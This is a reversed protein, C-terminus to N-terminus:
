EKFFAEAIAVKPETWTPIKQGAIRANEKAKDLQNVVSYLESLSKDPYAAFPELIKLSDLKFIAAPILSINKQLIIKQVELYLKKSNIITSIFENKNYLDEILKLEELAKQVLIATPKINSGNVFPFIVSDVNSLIKSALTARLREKLYQTEPRMILSSYLDFNYNDIQPLTIKIEVTTSKNKMSLLAISTNNPSIVMKHISHASSITLRTKTFDNNIDFINVKNNDGAVFLFNNYSDTLIDSVSSKMVKISKIKLYTSADFVDIDKDKRAIFLYKGDTTSLVATVTKGRTSLIKIIKGTKTDSIFVSGNAAGSIIRKSDPLFSLSTITSSHKKNSSKLTLTKTDWIKLTQDVSGSAILVGDPSAKIATIDDNHAVIEAIKKRNTVDFICIKNDWAGSVIKNDFYHMSKIGGKHVQNKSIPKYKNKIEYSMIEGKFNGVFLNNQTDFTCASGFFSAPTVSIVDIKATKYKEKGLNEPNYLKSKKVANEFQVIEGTLNNPVDYFFLNKHSVQKNIGVELFSYNERGYIKPIQKLNTESMVNGRVYSYIEGFQMVYDRNQDSKGSLAKSLFYTFVGHGGGWHESESSYQNPECSVMKFTNEWERSLALLTKKRSNPGSILSGSRCADLFVIFKVSKAAAMESIKQLTEIRIADSAPYFGEDTVDHMLLYGNPDKDNSNDGHGAFYFVIKDGQKCEELQAYLTLLVNYKNVQKNTLLIINHPSISKSKSFVSNLLEADKDAYKLQFKKSLQSYSSVGVLLVKTKNQAFVYQFSFFIIAFFALCKKFFQKM